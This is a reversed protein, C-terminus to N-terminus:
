NGWDNERFSFYCKDGIIVHDLLEIGLLMGSEALQKTIKVDEESPTPDGSPHNHLIILAIAGETIASEFVERPHIISADKIGMSINKENIIQKRSNLYIARFHEQNLTSFEPSYIKFIDKASSVKQRKDKPMASIRRALEFAAILQSAKVEGIGHLKKLETISKRSLTKLNYKNLLNQSIELINEKKSGHRLIISILETNSLASVGYAKLRERPRESEYFDKIKM